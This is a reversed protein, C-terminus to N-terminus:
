RYYHIREIASDEGKVSAGLAPRDKWHEALKRGLKIGPAEVYKYLLASAAITLVFTTGILLWFHMTQGLVPAIKILAADVAILILKHSLYISYSIKGLYQALPHTFFPSLWRSSLSDAPEHLLALFALWFCAPILPRARDGLLYIIVAIGCAAPFVIDGAQAASTLLGQKYVYFSVAGIFFFELHFPLFAESWTWRTSAVFLVACIAIATLRTARSHVVAWFALPAALYFQWELSISWGVGLYAQTSWRGLWADPALGHVMGLHLAINWAWHDWASSIAGDSHLFYENAHQMTWVELRSTPIAVLFMLLYLPYLRFFRRCLFQRVSEGRKDLLFFIVFGSVTMFLNVALGGESLLKTLGSLSGDDRFGSFGLAHTALVWLALWARM